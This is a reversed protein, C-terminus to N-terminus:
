NTSRDLCQTPELGFVSQLADAGGVGTGDPKGLNGIWGNAHRRGQISISNRHEWGTVMAELSECHPKHIRPRNRLNVIFGSDIENLERSSRIERM